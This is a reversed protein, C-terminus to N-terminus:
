IWAFCGPIYYSASFCPSGGIGQLVLSQLNKGPMFPYAAFAAVAKQYPHPRRNSDAWCSWFTRNKRSFLVKEKNEPPKLRHSLGADKLIKKHLNVASDPYYMEGTAPSPFMYPNNPHKKHESILLDIV